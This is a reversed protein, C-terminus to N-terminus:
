FKGQLALDQIMERYALNYADVFDNAESHTILENENWYGNYTDKYLPSYYQGEEYHLSKICIKEYGGNLAYKKSYVIDRVNFKSYKTIELKCVASGGIKISLGTSEFEM